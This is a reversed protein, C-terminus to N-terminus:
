HGNEYFVGKNMITTIRKELEELGAEGSFKDRLIGEGDLIFTAPLAVVGFQRAVSHYEDVAMPYSIKALLPQLRSDDKALPGENIAIPIFNKDKYREKFQDLAVLIQKDCFHCDISWFRILIVKGRYDGPLDITEGNLGTLTIPAVEDGIELPGRKKCGPTVSAVLALTFLILLLRKM